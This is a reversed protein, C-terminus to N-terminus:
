RRMRLAVVPLGLLLISMTAPEPLVCAVFSEWGPVSFEQVYLGVRCRGSHFANCVDDKNYGNVIDFLFSITEGPGIGYQLEPSVAEFSLGATVTFPPTIANGGPLDSPVAPTTFDVGALSDDISVLQLMNDCDFYIDTVVCEDSGDNDIYIRISWPNASTCYITLQSEGIAVNAPNNNTIGIFGCVEISAAAFGSLLLVALATFCSLKM